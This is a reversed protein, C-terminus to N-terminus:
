CSGPSPWPGGASGTTLRGAMTRTLLSGVGQPILLLAAELVSFGRLEQWYLPLLFMAAYTCAGALFLVASSAGVSRIRLLRVDILAGAPRRRLTWAM